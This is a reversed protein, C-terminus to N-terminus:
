GADVIAALQVRRRRGDIGAIEAHGAGIELVYLSQADIRGGALDLADVAPSRFLAGGGGALRPKRRDRPRAPLSRGVMDDRLRRLGSDPAAQSMSSPCPAVTAISAAVGPPSSASSSCTSCCTGWDCTACPTPPITLLMLTRSFIARGAM